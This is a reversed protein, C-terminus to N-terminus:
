SAAEGLRDLSISFGIAPVPQRSGLLSCLRDYRGGGAVAERQGEVHAEFLVGSYYDLKRGFSARWTIPELSCGRQDLQDIRASFIDLAGGFHVGHDEAFAALCRGAEALPSELQLFTRLTEAHAADLQFLSESARAIAREAIAQPSRGAHSSLGTEEMLAAVHAVLGERDSQRALRKGTDDGQVDKNRGDSLEDLLAALRDAEGFNRKLRAAIPRPLALNEVVMDFLAQDGLTISFRALGGRKLAEMMDSLCAADAAGTDTNGLDELGAQRFESGHDRQQRFVIGEYAYRAPGEAKDIHRRCIPITFEPRLCNLSGDASETLFIRRRLDEGATELFPDAPQLIPVTMRDPAVSRLYAVLDSM